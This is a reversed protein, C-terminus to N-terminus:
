KEQSGAIVLFFYFPKIRNIFAMVFMINAPAIRM